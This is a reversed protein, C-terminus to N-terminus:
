RSPFLLEVIAAAAALGFGIELWNAKPMWRLKSLGYAIGGLILLILAFM